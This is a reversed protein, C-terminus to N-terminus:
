KSLRGLTVSLIVVAPALNSEASAGAAPIQDLSLNTDFLTDFLLAIQASNLMSHFM